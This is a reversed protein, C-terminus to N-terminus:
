KVVCENSWIRLMAHHTNVENVERLEVGYNKTQLQVLMPAVWTVSNLCVNDLPFVRVEQAVRALSFLVADIEAMTKVDNLVYPALLLQFEGDKYPLNLLSKNSPEFISVDAGQSRWKVVQLEADNAILLIKKQEDVPSLQFIQRLAQITYVM